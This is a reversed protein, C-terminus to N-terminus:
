LSGGILHILDVRKENLSRPISFHRMRTTVLVLADVRTSQAYRHLQRTVAGLAGDVKVELGLHGDVVFDIIDGSAIEVEREFPIEATHLREAIADQVVRESTALVRCYGIARRVDAIATMDSGIAM